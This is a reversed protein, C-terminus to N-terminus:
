VLMDSIFQMGMRQYFSRENQIMASFEKIDKSSIEPVLSKAQQSQLATKPANNNNTMM